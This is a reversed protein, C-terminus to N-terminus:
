TPMFKEVIEALLQRRTRRLPISFQQAQMAAVEASILKSLLWNKFKDDKQFLAPRPLGPESPHVGQKCTFAVRYDNNEPQVVCFVHNYQSTISSPDFIQTSTSDKFLILIVDNGLHRKREVQQQDDATFPIFTSVHFMVEFGFYETYVSHSGTLDDTVNLGGRFKDFGKLVVRKGMINLFEEFETSGTTNNYMDNEEKQNQKCYLIGMKYCNSFMKHEYTVLVEALSNRNEGEGPEKVEIMKADALQPYATRLAKMRTNKSDSNCKLLIREDGRVTRIIVRFTLESKKKDKKRKKGEMTIITPRNPDDYVLYHEIGTLDHLYEKYWLTTTPMPFDDMDYEESIEGGLERHYGPAECILPARGEPEIADPWKPRAFEHSNDWFNLWEDEDSSDEDSEDEKRGRVGIRQLLTPSSNSDKALISTRKTKDEKNKLKDKNKPKMAANGRIRGLPSSTSRDRNVKNHSKTFSLSRKMRQSFNSSSAVIQDEGEGGAIRDKECYAKGGIVHVPSGVDIPKNCITCCFHEPHWKKGIASICSGDLIAENCKACKPVFAEHFDKECYAKGDKECFPTEQGFPKQCIFCCFHKSHWTKGMAILKEDTIPKNCHACRDCTKDQYCKKCFAKDEYVYYDNMGKQCGTCLFHDPHYHLGNAELRDNKIAKKCHECTLKLKSPTSSYSARRKHGKSKKPTPLNGNSDEKSSLESVDDSSM